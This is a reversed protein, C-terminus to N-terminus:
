PRKEKTRQRSKLSRPMTAPEIWGPKGQTTPPLLGAQRALKVVKAAGSQSLHFRKSVATTPKKRAIWAERYVRAVEALLSPTWHLPRGTRPAASSKSILFREKEDKSVV